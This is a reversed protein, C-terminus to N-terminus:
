NRSGNTATKLLSLRQLQVLRERAGVDVLLATTREGCTFNLALPGGRQRSGRDAWPQAGPSRTATPPLATDPDGKESPMMMVVCKAAKKM